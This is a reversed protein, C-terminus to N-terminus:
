WTRGFIDYLGRMIELSRVTERLNAEWEAATQGDVRMNNTKAQVFKATQTNARDILMVAAPTGVYVPGSNQKLGSYVYGGVLDPLLTALQTSAPSSDPFNVATYNDTPQLAEGSGLKYIQNFSGFEQNFNETFYAMGLVQTYFRTGWTPRSEVRDMPLANGTNDVPTQAPPPYNFGLIYRDARLPSRM